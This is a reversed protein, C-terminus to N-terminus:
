TKKGVVILSRTKAVDDAIKMKLRPSGDFEFNSGDGLTWDDISIKNTDIITVERAILFTIGRDKMLEELEEKLAADDISGANTLKFSYNNEKYRGIVIVM